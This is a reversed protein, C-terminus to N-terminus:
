VGLLELIEDDTLPAPMDIGQKDLFALENTREKEASAVEHAFWVRDRETKAQELRMKMRGLRADIADLHSLDDETATRRNMDTDGNPTLVNYTMAAYTDVYLVSLM